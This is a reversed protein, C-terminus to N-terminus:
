LFESTVKAINEDHDNFETLINRTFVTIDFYITYPLKKKVDVSLDYVNM